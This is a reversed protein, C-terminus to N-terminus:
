KTEAEREAALCKSETKLFASNMYVNAITNALVIVMNIINLVLGQSWLLRCILMICTTLFNSIMWKLTYPNIEPCPRSKLFFVFLMWLADSFILAIVMDYMKATEMMSIVNFLLGQIMMFSLDIFMYRPVITAPDFHCKNVFVINGHFFRIILLLLIVCNAFDQIMLPLEASSLRPLFNGLLTTMAIACLMSYLQCLAKISSKYNNM